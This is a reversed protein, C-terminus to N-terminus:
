KLSKVYMFYFLKHGRAKTKGKTCNQQSEDLKNCGDTHVQEKRNNLLIRKSLIAVTTIGIQGVMLQHNGVISAMQITELKPNNHFCNRHVNTYLEKIFIFKGTEPIIDWLAITQGYTLVVETKYSVALLHITNCEWWCHILYGDMKQMKVLM